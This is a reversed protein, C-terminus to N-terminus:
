VNAAPGAKLLDGPVLVFGEMLRRATRVTKVWRVRAEGGDGAEEVDVEMTLDGSPHRLTVEGGATERAVAHVVTGRIKAAACTAIAGTLAYAGHAKGMSIILASLHVDQADEEPPAALAVKPVAPSRDAAERADGVLGCREAAVARVHELAAMLEPNGDVEAPSPIAELGLDKARVFVAPNGADVISVEIEGRGPVAVAESRKGTPLLAGTVAGGPDEYSLHIPAGTGPVGPISCDGEAQFAGGRVPVEALIMKDTNTNLIGVRTVPEVPEIWGEEIAFPGVAASLNGCNGRYDVTAAGIGVQGFTYRVPGGDERPPALIAAKSASSFGAGLGDIQRADPSGMVRLLVADRLAPDEPLDAERFFLGKSTGGRMFVSRIRAQM